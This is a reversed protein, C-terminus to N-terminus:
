AQGGVRQHQRLGPLAAPRGDDSRGGLQSANPARSKILGANEHHAHSSRTVLSGSPAGEAERPLVAVGSKPRAVTVRGSDADAAQESTPDDEAGLDDEPQREAGLGVIYTMAKEQLGAASTSEVHASLRREAWELSPGWTYIPKRGWLQYPPGGGRTAKTALTAPSIPYGHERLAQACQARTLKSTLSLHM